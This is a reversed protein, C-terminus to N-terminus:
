KAREASSVFAAEKLGTHSVRTAEAGDLVALVLAGDAPTFCKAVRWFDASGSKSRDSAWKWTFLSRAVQGFTSGDSLRVPAAYVPRPAYRVNAEVIAGKAQGLTPRNPAFSFRYGDMFARMQMEKDRIADESPAASARADAAIRDRFDPRDQAPHTDSRRFYYAAVLAALMQADCTAANVTPMPVARGDHTATTRFETM